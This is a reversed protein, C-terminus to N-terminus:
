DDNEDRERLLLLAAFVWFILEFIAAIFKKMGSKHKIFSFLEFLIMVAIGSILMIAAEYAQNKVLETFTIM